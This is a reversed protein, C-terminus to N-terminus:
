QLKGFYETIDFYYKNTTGDPITVDLADYMRGGSSVLSQNTIRVGPHHERLWIHEARIGDSERTAHIVVAAAVSSGDGGSFQPPTDALSIAIGRHSLSLISLVIVASLKM